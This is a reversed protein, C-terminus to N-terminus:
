CHNVCRSIAKCKQRSNSSIFPLEVAQKLQEFERCNRLQEIEESFERM